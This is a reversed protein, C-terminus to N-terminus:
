SKSKKHLIYLGYGKIWAQLKCDQLNEVSMWCIILTTLHRGDWIKQIKFLKHSRTNGFLRKNINIQYYSITCFTLFNTNIIVMLLYVLFYVIEISYMFILYQLIQTTIKMHPSASTKPRVLLEEWIYESLQDNPGINALPDAVSM